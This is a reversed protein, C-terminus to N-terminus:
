APLVIDRCFLRAEPLRLGLEAERQDIRHRTLLAEIATLPEASSEETLDLGSRPDRLRLTVGGDSPDLVIRPKGAASLAAALRQPLLDILEACWWSIALQMLERPRAAAATLSSGM